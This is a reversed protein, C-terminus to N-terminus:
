RKRWLLAAVRDGQQVLAIRNRRPDLLAARHSPSEMWGECIAATQEDEALLEAASRLRLDLSRLLAGLGEDPHAFRQSLAKRRALAYAAPAQVRQLPSAGLQGRLKNIADIMEVEHNAEVCPSQEITNAEHALFLGTEPGDPGRVTVGLRSWRQQFDAPLDIIGQPGIGLRETRGDTMVLHASHVEFGKSGAVQFHIPSADLLRAVLRGCVQNGARAQTCHLLGQAERDRKAMVSPIRRLLFPYYGQQALANRIAEVRDTGAQLAARELRSDVADAANAPVSLM